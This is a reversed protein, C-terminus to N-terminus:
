FLLKLGFQIVRPLHTIGTVRGFATSSPTTNPIDFQTHNFANIFESRFQLKFGEAIVTNKLLSIDWNNMIPARIGSFRSPLTRVNADLQNRSNREFGADVNFWQYINRNGNELPINHLDGTFISNGFGLPAGSQVQFIEQVQWGAILKGTLGRTQSFLQKGKGVPLEWIGSVVLRHTRDEAAIVREPSADFPNLFSTAGMLKSWAYAVNVTYGASLRKEFRSQL